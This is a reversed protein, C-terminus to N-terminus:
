KKVVRFTKSSNNIKVSLLYVGAQLNEANIQTELTHPQTKIVLQGLMNYLKVSQIPSKAKLTLLSEVPNPYYSFDTFEQNEIGLTSNVQVCFVGEAQNFGAVKFYYVTGPTLGEIQLAEGATACGLQEGLTTIDECNEPADFAVIETAFETQSFDTSIVVAGSEPATFTFWVSNTGHFDNLCAGVPEGAQEFANVNTFPGGDCGVDLGIAIADCLYNNSPPTPSTTFSYPGALTSENGESCTSQVYVDYTTESDLGEIAAMPTGDTVEITTGETAPDFGEPGYTVVWSVDNAGPNWVVQASNETIYEFHINTAMPCEPGYDIHIDDVIVRLQNPDSYANFAFYYVGSEPVTFIISDAQAGATNIEPYDALITTMDVASRSTGMTVKLKEVYSSTTTGYTYSIKYNTDALLNIGQTFYWANTPNQYDYQARIVNGTFGSGDQNYTEWNNGSGANEIEACNPLAPPAISEFDQTFPVDTAECETTFTLPGYFYSNDTPSCVARVYIDYTTNPALGSISTNPSGSDVNVSTGENNALNFGNEGYVVEWATESGGPLWSVDTSSSTLNSIAIDSPPLCSPAEVIKIMYDESEGSGSDGCPLLDGYSIFRVRVRTSMTPTLTDPVVFSGTYPSSTTTFVNEGEDDFNGNLNWDIWVAVDGYESSGSIFLDIEQGPYAIITDTDTYDSYGNESGQSDVNIDVLANDTAVNTIQYYDSNNTPICYCETAPNLTVSIIDSYSTESSSTCTLMYRFDTPVSIGEELTFNPSISNEIDTWTDEGAPSSQWTRELGEAPESSGTVTLAFADNACVSFESAEITGATPTGTCEDLQIISVTYDETEGYTESGCPDINDGTYVLRVRMRYDGAATEDPVIFDESYTGEGMGDGNTFAIEESDEFLGNANYDIWARVDESTPSGYDTSINITYQTGPALNPADLSTYDGYANESCESDNNLNITTGSLSVNSIRDGASCGTSYTPTCYCETAPNLTVSIVASTDTESTASCTVIYRFDTNESIGEDLTFNTSIADPIDTWTNEGAPSSQWIRILGGAPATADTVSLTVPNGACVSFSDAATGATPTGTCPELEPLSILYDETESYSSTTTCPDLESGDKSYQYQVRLRHTGPFAAMTFAPFDVTSGSGIENPLATVKESDEFAGNDNYDIWIAAGHNGSGSGATLSATYSQGIVLEVTAISDTYNTYGDVGEGSPSTHNLDGLTFNIIEDSNNSSGVPICYCELGPALTVSIVDSTATEGSTTCTVKFRYDTAETIGEPFDLSIGTAGTIDTWTDQGAPSSQWIYEIGNAPASAGETSISFEIGSCIEFSATVTGATPTGSCDALLDGFLQLQAIENTIGSATPPDTPDANTGDQYFYIGRNITDASTTATYGVWNPNGGWGDTNEDIAIIINSTGDWEFGSDLTIELWEDATVQDPLQGSFVQTLETIPVWATDNSFGELETTGIYVVWDKWDTTSVDSTPKYLIKSITGAIGGAAQLDEATYITQTYSYNYLYYNPFYSITQDGSGIQITNQAQALGISLMFLALSLSLKKFFRGRTSTSNPDNKKM